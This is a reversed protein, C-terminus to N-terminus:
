PHDETIVATVGHLVLVIMAADTITTIVIETGATDLGAEM